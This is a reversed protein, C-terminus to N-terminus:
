QQGKLTRSPPSPGAGLAAALLADSVTVKQAQPERQHYRL